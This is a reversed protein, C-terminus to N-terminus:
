QTGSTTLTSKAADQRFRNRATYQSGTIKSASPALTRVARTPDITARAAADVRSAAQAELGDM